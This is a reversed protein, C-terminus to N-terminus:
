RESREKPGAVDAPRYEYGLVGRINKGDMLDEYGQNIEDLTVEGPTGAERMVAARTKMPAEPM